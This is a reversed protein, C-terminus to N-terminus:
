RKARSPLDFAKGRTHEGCVPASGLGLALDSSRPRVRFKRLRGCEFCQGRIARRGFRRLRTVLVLPAFADCFDGASWVLSLTEHKVASTWQATPAKLM